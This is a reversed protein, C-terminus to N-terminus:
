LLEPEFSKLTEFALSLFGQDQATGSYVKAAADIAALVLLHRPTTQQSPATAAQIQAQVAEHVAVGVAVAGRYRQTCYSGDPMKKPCFFGGKNGARMPSGHTPCNPIM